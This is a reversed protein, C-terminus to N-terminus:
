MGQKQNQFELCAQKPKRRKCLAAMSATPTPCVIPLCTLIVLRSKQNYKQWHRNHPLAVVPRQLEPIVADGTGNRGCGPGTCPCHTYFLLCNQFSSVARLKVFGNMEYCKQYLYITQTSIICFLCFIEYLYIELKVKKVIVIHLNPLHM